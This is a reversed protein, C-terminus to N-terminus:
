LCSTWCVVCSTWYGSVSSFQEAFWLMAIRVHKVSRHQLMCLGKANLDCLLCNSNGNSNSSLCLYRCMLISSHLKQMLICCQWLRCRRCTRHRYPWIATELTTFYILLIDFVCWQLHSFQKIEYGETTCQAYYFIHGWETTAIYVSRVTFVPIKWKENEGLAFWWPRYIYSKFMHACTLWYMFGPLCIPRRDTILSIHIAKFLTHVLYRLWQLSPYCVSWCMMSLATLRHRWHIRPQTEAVPPCWSWKNHVHISSM